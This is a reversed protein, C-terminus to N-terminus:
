PLKLVLFMVALLGGLFFCVVGALSAARVVRDAVKYLGKRDGFFVSMMVASACFVFLLAGVLFFNTMQPHAAAITPNIAPSSSAALFSISGLTAMKVARDTADNWRKEQYDLRKQIEEMRLTEEVQKALRGLNAVREAKLADDITRRMLKLREKKEGEAAM